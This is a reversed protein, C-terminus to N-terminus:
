GLGVCETCINVAKTLVDATGGTFFGYGLLGIGITLVVCRIIVLQRNCSKKETSKPMVAANKGVSKLLEIEKRISATSYFASFVAYGFPIAMCVLLWAVAKVMSANIQSQHFNSGNLGYILFLVSCVMLLVGSIIKHLSRRQRLRIVASQIEGNCKQLDTRLALRRLILGYQKQVPAKKKEEPLFLDLLFGVVVMGMALYVPIYIRGFAVAVTERSFSRDGANYIGVCAVMLCLGAIVLVVSLLISYILHIRKIHEKTM